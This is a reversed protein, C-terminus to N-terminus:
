QNISSHNIISQNASLQNMAGAKDLMTMKEIILSVRNWVKDNVGVEGNTLQIHTEQMSGSSGNSPFEWSLQSLKDQLAGYQADTIQKEQKMDMEPVKGEEHGVIINPEAVWEIIGHQVFQKLM